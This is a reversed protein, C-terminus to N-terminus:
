LSQIISPTPFATISELHSIHLPLGPRRPSAPRQSRWAYGGPGAGGSQSVQWFLFDVSSIACLRILSKRGYYKM